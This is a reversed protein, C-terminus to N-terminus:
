SQPVFRVRKWRMKMKMTNELLFILNLQWVNMAVRSQGRWTHIVLLTVPADTDLRIASEQLAPLPNNAYVEVVVVLVEKAFRM